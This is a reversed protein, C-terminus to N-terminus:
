WEAWEGLGFVRPLEVGEAPMESNGGAAENGARDRRGTVGDPSGPASTVEECCGGIVTRVTIVVTRGRTRVARGARPM